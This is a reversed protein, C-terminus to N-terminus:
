DLEKEMVLKHPYPLLTPTAPHVSSVSQVVVFGLSTYLQVAAANNAFVQVQAVSPPVTASRAEEIHREILRGALGMGRNNPSVYVYEIQLAGKRRDLRMSQLAEANNRLASMSHAPFTYGILNARLVQSPAGEELEGEIWGAVAAIPRSADRVVLFSSVSFECGEVEENFMATILEPLSEEEIGFVRALGSFSGGSQEAAQVTEVLFPIDVITAHEILFSM